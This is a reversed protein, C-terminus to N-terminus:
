PFQEQIKKSWEDFTAIEFEKQAKRAAKWEAEEDASMAVPEAADWKKLLAAIGEPTTPWDEERMGLSIQEQIPEITVECGEPWNPPVTANIQGNKVTAKIPTM